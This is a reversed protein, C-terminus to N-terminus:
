IREGTEASGYFTAEFPPPPISWVIHDSSYYTGVVYDPLSNEVEEWFAIHSSLGEEEQVDNEKRHIRANEDDKRDNQEERLGSKREREIRQSQRGADSVNSGATAGTTTSTLLSPSSSSANESFPSEASLAEYLSSFAKEEKNRSRNRTTRCDAVPELPDMLSSTTSFTLQFVFRLVHSCVPLFFLCTGTRRERNTDVELGTM